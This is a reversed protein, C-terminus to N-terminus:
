IGVRTLLLAAVKQLTRNFTSRQLPTAKWKKIVACELANRETGRVGMNERRKRHEASKIEASGM